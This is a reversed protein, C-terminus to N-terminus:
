AGIAAEAQPPVRSGQTHACQRRAPTTQKHVGRRRPTHKQPTITKGSSAAASYMDRQHLGPPVLPQRRQAAPVMPDAPIPCHSTAHLAGAPENQPAPSTLVM